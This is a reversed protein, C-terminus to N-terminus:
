AAACRGAPVEVEFGADELVAVAAQGVEPHFYNTFTDPWLIM